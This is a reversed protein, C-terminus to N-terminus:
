AATYSWGASISEGCSPRKVSVIWRPAKPAEIRAAFHRRQQEIVAPMRLDAGHGEALDGVNGLVGAAQVHLARSVRLEARRARAPRSQRHCDIPPILTRIFTAAHRTTSSDTPLAVIVSALRTSSPM